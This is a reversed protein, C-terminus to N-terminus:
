QRAMAVRVQTRVTDVAVDKGAETVLFTRVYWDYERGPNAAVYAHVKAVKGDRVVQAQFTDMHGCKSCKHTINALAM